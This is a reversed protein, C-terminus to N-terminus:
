HGYSLSILGVQVDRASGDGTAHHTVRLRLRLRELSTAVVSLPLLHPIVSIEEAVTMVKLTLPKVRALADAVRDDVPFEDLIELQHVATGQLVKRLVKTPVAASTLAKWGHEQRVTTGRASADTRITLHDLHPFTISLNGSEPPTSATLNRVCPWMKGGSHSISWIGAELQITELTESFPRLLVDLTFHSSSETQLHLMRLPFSSSPLLAIMTSVSVGRLSLDTLLKCSEHLPLLDAMDLDPFYSLDLALRKLNAARHLVDGLCLTYQMLDEKHAKHADIKNFSPLQLSRVCPVRRDSQVLLHRLFNTAKAMDAQEEYHALLIPLGLSYIDKCTQMLINLQAKKDLWQMILAIIDLNLKM